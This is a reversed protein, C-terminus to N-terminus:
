SLNDQQLCFRSAFMDVDLKKSVIALFSIIVSWPLWKLFVVHSRFTRCCACSRAQIVNPSFRLLCLCRFWSQPHTKKFIALNSFYAPGSSLWLFGKDRFHLLRFRYSSHCGVRCRQAECNKVWLSFQLKCDDTPTTQQRQSGRTIISKSHTHFKTQTECM